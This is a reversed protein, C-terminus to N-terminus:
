SLINNVGAMFIKRKYNPLKMSYPCLEQNESLPCYQCGSESPKAPLVASKRIQGTKEDFISLFKNFREETQKISINAHPPIFKAIYSKQSRYEATESIKRKLILFFIEISQLPVQFLDSYYKKYLRLQDSKISSKKQFDGWGFKSTKFDYIYFKGTKPDKLVMDIFGTFEVGPSLDVKLETEIGELVYGDPFYTKPLHQQCYNLINEADECHEFFSFASIKKNKLQDGLESKINEAFKDKFYEGLDVYKAKKPDVQLLQIWYQLTEHITTGFVLTINSIRPIVKKEYIQDWQYPCTSWMSYQTYSIRRKSTEDTIDLEIEPTITM